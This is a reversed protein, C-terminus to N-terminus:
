VTVNGLACGSLAGQRCPPAAGAVATWFQQPNQCPALITQPRRPSRRCLPAAVASEPPGSANSFGFRAARGFATDRRGQWRLGVNHSTGMRDAPGPPVERYYRTGAQTKM